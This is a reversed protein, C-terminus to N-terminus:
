LCDKYNTKTQRELMEVDEEGQTAGAFFICVLIILSLYTAGFILATEFHEM